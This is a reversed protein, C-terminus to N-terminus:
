ASKLPFRVFVVTDAEAAELAAALFDRV